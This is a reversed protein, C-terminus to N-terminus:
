VGESQILEVYAKRYIPSSPVVVSIVRFARDGDRIEDGRRVDANPSLYIRHSHISEDQQAVLKENASPQDVKGRVDAQRVLTTTSGGMGDPM